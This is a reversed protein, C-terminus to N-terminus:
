ATWIIQVTKGDLWPVTIPGRLKDVGLLVPTHSRKRIKIQFNQGDYVVRGPMNVFKKFITPALCLEFRKLDAAFIHYLSDAVLTWLIDFHIRVMLPSSLANLNFFSVMEALKQEVHWRKAYILLVDKLPADFDNLLVYTPNVRGHDKVTIQRFENECGRLKVTEEFVSVRKRKRKPIPLYVREWNEKPVAETKKRLAAHRKRLTIFKVGDNSLEDLVSYTTFKCDFVLTDDVEGKVERWYALFRKVEQAEDSRKIETRTYVVTNSASDQAFVTNAGKMAKGRAGCWVKEMESEDGYHPISHFDLNVCGSEYMHPHRKKLLRVIEKQFDMLEYESCRCSYTNMYTPKPPVTLGTFVGFGIERDYQSIHSLREQGVLKLLLMSLAAQRAGIVSSEPLRCKEVIDIVGSEIIYPLFFFVGAVPCDVSFKRLKDFDIARAADPIITNKGSIGLEKNTRRNLKPFGMDVLIREITRTSVDVGETNLAGCIERASMGKNRMRVTRRRVDGSIKGSRMKRAVTPFLEHPASASRQLIVRLSSEAYNFKEAAEEITMGDIVVARVAEYRHQKPSAPQRFFRALTKIKTIKM